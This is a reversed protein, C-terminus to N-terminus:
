VNKCNSLRLNAGASMMNLNDEGCLSNGNNLNYTTCRRNIVIIVVVIM